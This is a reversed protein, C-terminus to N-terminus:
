HQLYPKGCGTTSAWAGASSHAAMPGLTIANHWINAPINQYCPWDDTILRTQPAFAGLVFAHLEQKGFSESVKLQAHRPNGGIIRGCAVLMKGIWSRGASMVVPDNKTRLPIITEDAELLGNLPEREPHVMARRLKTCLM